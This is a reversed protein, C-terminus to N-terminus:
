QYFPTPVFVLVLVVISAAVLAYDRPRLRVADNLPLPHNRGFFFLLVVWLLWTASVFALCAMIALAVYSAFKARPGLLAYAIHGGDLQGAPILNIGTVLLGYWAGLAIPHLVVDLGNAPYAVGFRLIGALRTLVSDGLFIFEGAAPLPKVESLWLGLLLLPVAVAFGALPGAAAIELLSRRNEFPERQVIVAGMTGFSAPLPLPIFYPLSTRAGRMRGVVYHGAEHAVLIGLLSAALLLGAGLDIANGVFSGAFIVSIVTAIFLMVNITPDPREARPVIGPVAVVRYRKGDEHLYPTYGFQEFSKRLPRYADEPPHRLQGRLEIQGDPLFTYAEVDMETALATRLRAILELRDISQPPHM